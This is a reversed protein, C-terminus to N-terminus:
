KALLDPNLLQLIVLNVNGKVALDAGRRSDFPITGSAELDTNRATFHAQRIQAERASIAVSIPQTNRVVVDSAQVGLRLAQSEPANIQLTGITVDAQFADPKLLPVSFSATAELFGDVVNAPKKTDTGDLMVLDHLTAISMRSIKVTGSGPMDGDLRWDG